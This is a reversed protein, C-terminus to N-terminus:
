GEEDGHLNSPIEHTKEAKPFLGKPPTLDYIKTARKIARRHHQRPRIVLSASDSLSATLIFLSSKTQTQANQENINLLEVRKLM